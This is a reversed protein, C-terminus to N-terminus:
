CIRHRISTRSDMSEDDIKIMGKMNEIYPNIFEEANEGSKFYLHVKAEVADLIAVTPYKLNNQIKIGIITPSSLFYDLLEETIAEKQFPKDGVAVLLPKLM